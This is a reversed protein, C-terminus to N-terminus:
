RRIGLAKEYYSFYLLDRYTHQSLIGLHPSPRLRNTRRVTRVSGKKRPRPLTKGVFIGFSEM